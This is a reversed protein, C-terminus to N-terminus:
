RLMGGIETRSPCRSWPGDASVRAARRAETLLMLALLGTAEGDEPLLEHVLRALRIAERTLGDRVPPTDPGSALYGESFVLYLVALV